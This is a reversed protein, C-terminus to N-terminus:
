VIYTAILFKLTDNIKFSDKYVLEHRNKKRKLLNEEM